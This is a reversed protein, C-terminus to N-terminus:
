EITDFIPEIDVLWIGPQARGPGYGHTFQSPHADAWIQDSVSRDYLDISGNLQKKQQGTLGRIGRIIDVEAVLIYDDPLLPKHEGPQCKFYQQSGPAKFLGWTHKVVKAGAFLAIADYTDDATSLAEKLSSSEPARFRMRRVFTDERRQEATRVQNKGWAIRTEPGYVPLELGINRALAM